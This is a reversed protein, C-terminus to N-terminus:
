VGHRQQQEEQPVAAHEDHDRRDAASEGRRPGEDRVGRVDALVTGLLVSGQREVASSADALDREVTDSDEDVVLVVADVQRVVTLTDPATLLPEALVVVLHGDLVEDGAAAESSVMAVHGGDPVQISAGPGEGDQRDHGLMRAAQSSQTLDVFRVDRGSAALALAINVAADRSAAASRTGVVAISTRSEGSARLLIRTAIVDYDRAAPGSPDRLVVPAAAGAIAPGDATIHGLLGHREAAAAAAARRRARRLDLFVFVAFAVAGALLAALVAFLWRPVEVPEVADSPPAVVTVQGTLADERREEMIREDAVAPARREPLQERFSLVHWVLATTMRRAAVPDDATTTITLLRTRDNSTVDVAARLDEDELDSPWDALEAAERLVEDSTLMGAYTSGISASARISDTSGEVGGILLKSVSEYKPPALSTVAFAAAAALLATVLIPLWRRRATGAMEEIAIGGDSDARM